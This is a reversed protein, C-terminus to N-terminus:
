ERYVQHRYIFMLTNRYGVSDYFGKNLFKSWNQSKMKVNEFREINIIDGSVPVSMTKIMFFIILFNKLQNNINMDTFYFINVFVNGRYHLYFLHRM